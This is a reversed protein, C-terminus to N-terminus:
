VIALVHDVRKKDCGYNLRFLELNERGTLHLYLSPQEILSGLRRLIEIRDHAFNKDFLTIGGEQKKLLGLLLRLTTTKGAGNPGLFGYISKAPVQLNIDNLVTVEKSFSYRLSNTQILLNNM